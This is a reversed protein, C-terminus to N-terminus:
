FPIEVYILYRNRDRNVVVKKKFNYIYFFLM